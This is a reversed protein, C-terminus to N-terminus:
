PIFFLFFMGTKRGMRCFFRLYNGEFLISAVLGLFPVGVATILFGIAAYFNKDAAFRGIVLPFAVNGAGFFMSFMAFATSWLGLNFFKKM